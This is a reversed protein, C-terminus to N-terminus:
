TGSREALRLKASRARPNEAKERDTPCICKGLVAVRGEREHARLAQKVRRDELSHYSIFAARGGPRLLDPFLALFRDLRELERNVAIRLAQFSRTAPHIKGWKRPVVGAIVSALETTTRIRRRTRARVVARAIRRAFPEEGYDRFIKELDREPLRAVLREAPEGERRNMRMDLLGERLFSFGREPQDLQPSSVGLDLLIGDVQPTGREALIRGAEEYRGAVLQVRSGYPLLRSRALPLIEEDCDIGILRGEEGLRKLVAEAHGGSGVTGDLYVGDPKIQLGVIVEEVLAPRHPM